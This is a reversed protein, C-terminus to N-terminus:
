LIGLVFLSQIFKQVRGIDTHTSFMREGVPLMYDDMYAYAKYFYPHDLSDEVKNRKKTM